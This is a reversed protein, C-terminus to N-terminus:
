LLYIYIPNPLITELMVVVEKKFVPTVNATLWDHPIRGTNLSLSFLRSLIPAIETACHKLVWALINDPRPVKKTDVEKLLEQIVVTSISFPCQRIIIGPTIM